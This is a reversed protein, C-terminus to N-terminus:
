KVSEKAKKPNIEIRGGVGTVICDEGYVMQFRRFAREGTCHCSAVKRVGLEKVAQVIEALESYSDSELHFGGLALYIPQELFARKVQGLIPVIGPHACGTVVVLGRVTKLVMSQERITGGMEGLTYVGPVIQRTIGVTVPTAGARTIRGTIQSPFSRPIYVMVDSNVKLFADLGGLHDHHKHSIIVADITTPDIRLRRMNELLVQGVEGTDFLIMNSGIKAM